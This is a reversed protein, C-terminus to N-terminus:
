AEEVEMGSAHLVSGGFLDLDMRLLEAPTLHGRKAKEDSVRDYLTSLEEHVRLQDDTYSERGEQAQKELLDERKLSM